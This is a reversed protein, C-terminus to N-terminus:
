LKTVKPKTYAVKTIPTVVGIIVETQYANACATAGAEAEELTNYDNYYDNMENISDGAEYVIYLKM